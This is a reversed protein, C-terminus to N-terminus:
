LHVASGMEAEALAIKLLHNQHIADRWGPWQSVAIKLRIVGLSFGHIVHMAQTTFIGGLWWGTTGVGMGRHGMFRPHLLQHIHEALGPQVREVHRHPDVERFGAHGEAGAAFAIATITIGTHQM